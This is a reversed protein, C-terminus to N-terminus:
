KSELIKQAKAHEEVIWMTDSVFSELQTKSRQELPKEAWCKQLVQKFKSFGALFVTFQPLPETALDADGRTGPMLLEVQQLVCKMEHKESIDKWTVPKNEFLRALSVRGSAVELATKTKDGWPLREAMEKIFSFNVQQHGCIRQLASGQEIEANVVKVILNRLEHKGEFVVKELSNIKEVDADIAARRQVASADEYTMLGVSSEIPADPKVAVAKQKKPKSNSKKKSM